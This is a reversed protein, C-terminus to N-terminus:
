VKPCSATGLRPRAAECLAMWFRQVFAEERRFFSESAPAYFYQTSVPPQLVAVRGQAETLLFGYSNVPLAIADFRDLELLPVTRAVEFVPEVRMGANEVVSSTASGTAAGLRGQLRRATWQSQLEAQRKKLVVWAIPSIGIALRRDVQGDAQTPYRWLAVREPTDGLGMGVDVQGASMAMQLRRAPLRQLQAPCGLARLALRLEEVMQGPRREDFTTGASTLFPPADRDVFAIRVPQAPCAGQALAQTPTGLLGASVGLVGAAIRHSVRHM